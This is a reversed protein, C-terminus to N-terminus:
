SRAVLTQGTAAAKALCDLCLTPTEAAVQTPARAADDVPAETGAIGASSASSWTAVAQTTALLQAGCATKDGHRATGPGMSVMDDAGSTIAFTGKCRPCVTLDGARAVYKGHIDFTYDATIVTGGHTTRDGLTVFARAM